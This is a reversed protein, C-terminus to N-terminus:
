DKKDLLYHGKQSCQGIIEYSILQINPFEVKGINSAINEIRHVLGVISPVGKPGIEAVHGKRIPERSGSVPKM